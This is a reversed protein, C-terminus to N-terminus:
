ENTSRAEATSSLAGNNLTAQLKEIPEVTTTEIDYWTPQETELETIAAETMTSGM